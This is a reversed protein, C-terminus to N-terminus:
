ASVGPSKVDRYSQAQPLICDPNIRCRACISNNICDENGPLAIKKGAILRSIFTGLLLLIGARASKVLFKRREPDM